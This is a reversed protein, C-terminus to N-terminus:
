YDTFNPLFYENLYLNPAKLKDRLHLNAKVRETMNPTKTKSVCPDPSHHLLFCSLCVVALLCVQKRRELESSYSLHKGSRELIGRKRSLSSRCGIM